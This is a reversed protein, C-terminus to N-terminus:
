PTPAADDLPQLDCRFFYPDISLKHCAWRTPDDLQVAVRSTSGEVDTLSLPASTGAPTFREFGLVTGPGLPTQVRQQHHLLM